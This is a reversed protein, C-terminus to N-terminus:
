VRPARRSWSAPSPRHGRRARVTTIGLVDSDRRLGDREEGAIEIGHGERGDPERADRGVSVLDFQVADSRDAGNM